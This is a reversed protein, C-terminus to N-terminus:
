KLSEQWFSLDVFRSTDPTQGAPPAEGRATLVATYAAALGPASVSLDTPMIGRRSFDSCARLAYETKIGLERAIIPAALDPNAFLWETAQRMVRLFAVTVPRNKQAWRLNTNIATFQYSPVYDNVDALTSLGADEAVYNWPISQLAADIRGEELLRARTQAGGAARLEYDGPELGHRALIDRVQFTTGETVSAVGIVAGRLEEISTFRPQAILYHSMRSSNGAIIRLDGRNDVDEMVGETTAIALELSGSKLGETAGATSDLIVLELELGAAAFLGLELGCWVPARYFTRSVFGIRLHSSQARVPAAQPWPAAAALVFLGVRRLFSRRTIKGAKHDTPPSEQWGPSLQHNVKDM